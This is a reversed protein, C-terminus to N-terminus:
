SLGETEAFIQLEIKDAFDEVQEIHSVKLVRVSNGKCILTLRWVYNPIYVVSGGGARGAHEARTTRAGELECRFETELIENRSCDCFPPAKLM